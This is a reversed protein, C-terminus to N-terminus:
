SINSLWIGELIKFITLKFNLIQFNQFIQFKICTIIPMCNYYGVCVPLNISLRMAYAPAWLRPQPRVLGTFLWPCRRNSSFGSRGVETSKICIQFNCHGSEKSVSYLLKFLWCIGFCLQVLRCFQQHVLLFISQTYRKM